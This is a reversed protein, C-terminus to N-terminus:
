KFDIEFIEGFKEIIDENRIIIGIERNSDLSYTSFNVSWIYLYKNDVLIAKAHLKNKSIRKITIWAQIFNKYTENEETNKDVILNIKIWNNAKKILLNELREDQLYPFYIDM